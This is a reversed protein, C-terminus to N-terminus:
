WAGSLFFAIGPPMLRYPYYPRYPPPGAMPRAGRYGHGHWRDHDDYRREGWGRDGGEHYRGGGDRYYHREGGWGRGGDAAALGPLALAGALLAALAVTSRTQRMSM